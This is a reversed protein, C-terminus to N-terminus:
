IPPPDLKKRRRIFVAWSRTLELKGRSRLLALRLRLNEAIPREAVVPARRMGTVAKRSSATCGM